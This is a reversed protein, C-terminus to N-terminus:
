WQWLEQNQASRQWKIMIQPMGSTFAHGHTHRTMHMSGWTLSRPAACNGASSQAWCVECVAREFDTWHSIFQQEETFLLKRHGHRLGQERGVEEVGVQRQLTRDPLMFSAVALGTWGNM